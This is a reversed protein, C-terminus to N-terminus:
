PTDLITQRGNEFTTPNWGNQYAHGKTATSSHCSTCAAASAGQLTDDIKNQWMTSGADLTTAVAKGQDPIANPGRVFGDVHCAACENLARPYTPAHFNHVQNSTSAAPDSGFVPIPVSSAGPWNRLVEESSAFAYIGRTRYIVIPSNGPVGAAHIAHLMTKLEYTQGVLGDYSETADVGMGVRVNQEISASNHCATCMKVNDVRTNGHQYLSGVHCKLCEGTDAIPRRLETPLAGTGVIYERDPTPVRVYMNTYPYHSNAFGVPLPLQPKGQLAVYGRTGAPISKDYDSLALTTTAVNGACVTNANSLNTNGPQGPANTASGLIFDDGQAYTRLMGPAGDLVTGAPANHFVPGANVDSNCPNVAVGNFTASWNIKLTAGDDVISDIKWTFKKGETVSLDVGNWIIGVRETEIGNHFDAVTVKGPAVGNVRHCETCDEAGTYAEHFVTGTVTFDWSEMSGHCSFCGPGSVPMANAAALASGGTAPLISDAKHCVSCNTMYTPYTTEYTTGRRSVFKGAPFDHANHIGHVVEALSGYSPAPSKIHCVVCADASMPASYHGGDNTPGFRGTEGSAGHCDVCSQSSALGALPIATPYDGVAAVELENAGTKLIVLYRHPGVFRPAGNVTNNIRISYTGNGNNTFRDPTIETTITTRVTGNFVYARYFTAATAPAGDATVSFSAVLDAGAPAVAFNGFTATLDDSVRQAVLEHAADVGSISGADHCVACSERPDAKTVPGAPGAPGTPGPPGATGPAGPTGAAGDKGDDGECGTMGVALAILAILPVFKRTGRLKAFRM